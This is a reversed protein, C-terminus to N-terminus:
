FSFLSHLKCFFFAKQGLSHFSSIVAYVYIYTDQIYLDLNIISLDLNVFLFFFSLLRNYNAM